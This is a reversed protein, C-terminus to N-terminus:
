KCGYAIGHVIAAIKASAFTAAVTTPVVQIIIDKEVRFPAFNLATRGPAQLVLSAAAFATNAGSPAASGDVYAYGVNVALTPVGNTDIDGTNQLIVTNIETGAPVKMFQLVDTTAPSTAPTVAGTFTVASADDDTFMPKSILDPANFQM